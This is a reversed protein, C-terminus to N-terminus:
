QRIGSTCLSTRVMLFNHMSNKSSWYWRTSNMICKRSFMKYSNSIHCVLLHVNIFINLLMNNNKVLM